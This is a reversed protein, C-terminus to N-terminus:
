PRSEIVQYHSAREDWRKLVSRAEEPIYSRTYDEGQFAIVNDLAQFTIITIFAVEHELDQRLVEFGVYGPIQKAEIGPIVVEHLLKVYPDANEHSTWGHWIRKIAM